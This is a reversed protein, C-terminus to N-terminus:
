AAACAAGEAPIEAANQFVSPSSGGAELRWVENGDRAWFEPRDMGLFDLHMSECYAGATALELVDGVRVPPLPLRALIDNSYTSAGCISTMARPGDPAGCVRVVHDEAGHVLRRPYWTSSTDVLVYREGAREKVDTVGAYLVGGTGAISRGPEITLRLRDATAATRASWAAMITQWMGLADGSRPPLAFGGGLDIERIQEWDAALGVLAELTALYIDPSTLNTGVYAHLITVERDRGLAERAETVTLGLRPAPDPFDNAALLSGVNMRVGTKGAPRLARYAILQEVSDACYEVGSAAVAGLIGTQHGSGAFVIAEPPIGAALAVRLHATSNVFAGLGAQRVARLVELRPNAMTAYLVRVRRDGAVQRYSAANERLDQLDYVFCPTRLEPQRRWLEGWM